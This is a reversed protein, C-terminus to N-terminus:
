EECDMDQHGQKAYERSCESAESASHEDVPLGCWCFHMRVQPMRIPGAAEEAERERADTWDPSVTEMNSVEKHM